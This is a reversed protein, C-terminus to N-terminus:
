ARGKRRIRNLFGEDLSRQAQREAERSEFAKAEDKLTEAQRREIRKSLFDQRKGNVCARGEAIRPKLAAARRQAARIEELGALRDTLENTAASALILQRGEKEREKASEFAAELRRLDVLAGELAARHQEEELELVRLLRRMTRSGAM